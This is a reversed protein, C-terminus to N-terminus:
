RSTHCAIAWHRTAPEQSIAPQSSYRSDRGQVQSAIPESSLLSGVNSFDNTEEDVTEDRFAEAVSVRDHSAKNEDNAEGSDEERRLAHDIQLDCLDQTTDRPTDELSECDGVSGFDAGNSKTTVQSGIDIEAPTKTLDYTNPDDLRHQWPFIL